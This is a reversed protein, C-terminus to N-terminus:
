GRREAIGEDALSYSTSRGSGLNRVLVGRGVLDLIDRLATDSSCKTIVAWKSTTLKGEFGDLLRNLMVRQRDNISVDRHEQWFRAKRFVAALTTEAGDIARGLCGLFWEMWATVDMTGKQVRELIAYYDNRERRIQASMSYFRQTSHESRALGLDAIARAIRGNGDDFPHITVFWLHALGAKLVDDAVAPGTGENFWRLFARMERNLREAAPAEFHVRQRGVPGSVVQMPGTTDDRWAGVRLKRMGSRGTPFLSAHWAFLRGAALPQDFNRTADLMMDVVGEVRRDVVDVGAVDMGLRRAISSRVQAADLKEGEIESSKVTEETLAELTAEQQLAFGLAEMRGVLRGQQHRVSALTGALRDQDWHFKPWDSLKHIYRSSRRM